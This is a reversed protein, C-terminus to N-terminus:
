HSLHYPLLLLYVRPKLRVDESDEPEDEDDHMDHNSQIAELDEM